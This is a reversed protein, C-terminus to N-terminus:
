GIKLHMPCRRLRHNKSTDIEGVSVDYQVAVSVNQIAAGDLEDIGRLRFWHNVQGQVGADLLVADVQVEIPRDFLKACLVTGVGRQGGGVDDIKQSEPLGCFRAGGSCRRCIM